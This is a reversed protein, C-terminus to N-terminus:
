NPRMKLFFGVVVFFSRGFSKGPALMLLQQSCNFICIFGVDTAKRYSLPLNILKDFLVCESADFRAELYLRQAEALVVIKLQWDKVM